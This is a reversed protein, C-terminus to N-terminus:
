KFRDKSTIELVHISGLSHGCNPCKISRINRLDSLAVVANYNRFEENCGGCLTKSLQAPLSRIMVVLIRLLNWVLIVGGYMALAWIIGDSVGVSTLIIGCFLVFVTITTLGVLRRMVKIGLVASLVLTNLYDANM